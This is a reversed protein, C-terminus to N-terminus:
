YYSLNEREYNTSNHLKTIHFYLNYRLSGIQDDKYNTLISGDYAWDWAYINM